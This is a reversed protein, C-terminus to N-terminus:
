GSNSNIKQISRCKINGLSTISSEIKFKDRETQLTKSIASCYILIGIFYLLFYFYSSFQTRAM